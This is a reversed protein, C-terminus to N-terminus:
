GPRTHGLYGSLFESLDRIDMKCKFVLFQNLQKLQSACRYDVAVELPHPLDLLLDSVNHIVVLLPLFHGSRDTGEDGELGVIGLDLCEGVVLEDFLDLIEIERLVDLSDLNQTLIRPEFGGRLRSINQPLLDM